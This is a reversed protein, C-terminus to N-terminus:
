EKALKVRHRRERAPERRAATRISYLNKDARAVTKELKEKGERTAWGLSFPVMVQEAAASEIRRAARETHAADAHGLVILFEDGGMRIVAEEARVQRMLFRSLKVLVEDGAQHGLEDNYRKFHDIDIVICGWGGPLEESTTEFLSLYRRNFCGTLPDRISQERLQNELEKRDTIDMLMGHYFVTGTPDKWAYATDLVTRISGDKRKLRLEFERVFGDRELLRKEWARVEPDIFDTVLHSRLDDLNAAGFLELMAPNADLIRGKADSIYIAEKLNRVLERLLEPDSLSHVGSTSMKRRAARVRETYRAM